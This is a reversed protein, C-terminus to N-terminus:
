KRYPLVFAKGNELLTRYLSGLKPDAIITKPFVTTDLPVRGLVLDPSTRIWSKCWEWWSRQLVTKSAEESLFLSVGAAPNQLIPVHIHICM